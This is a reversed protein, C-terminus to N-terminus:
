IVSYLAARACVALTEAVAIVYRCSLVENRGL